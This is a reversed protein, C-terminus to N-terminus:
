SYYDVKCGCGDWMKEYIEMRKQLLDSAATFDNMKRILYENRNTMEQFYISDEFQLIRIKDSICTDRELIINSHNLMKNLDSIDVKLYSNEQLQKIEDFFNMKSGTKAIQHFLLFFSERIIFEGFTIIFLLNLTIKPKYIM